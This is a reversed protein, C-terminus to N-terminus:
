WRSRVRKSGQVLGFGTLRHHCSAEQKTSSERPKYSVVEGYLEGSYLRDSDVEQLLLYYSLDHSLGKASDICLSWCQRSPSTDTDM